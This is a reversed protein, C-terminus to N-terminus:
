AWSNETEQPASDHAKQLEINLADIIKKAELIETTQGFHKPTDMYEFEIKGGSVFYPRLFFPIPNKNALRFKNIFQLEHEDTSTWFTGEKKIKLKSNVISIKEIGRIEWLLKRFMIVGGLLLILCILFGGDISFPKTNTGTLVTFLGILVSVALASIGLLWVIALTVFYYDPKHKITFEM